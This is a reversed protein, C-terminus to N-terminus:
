VLTDLVAQATDISSNTAAAAVWAPFDAASVVSCRRFMETEAPTCAQYSLSFSARVGLDGAVLEDLRRQRNVLRSALDAFRWQTNAALRTGAIRLALPLGGCADVVVRVAGAEKAVRDAGVIGRLLSISDERSPPRLQIACTGDLGVLRSRSTVIVAAGETGPLLPRLQAVDTANDLVILVRRGAVMTRFLQSRSQVDAPLFRRDRGMAVMWEALVDSPDLGGNDHGHLDVFLAGDGFRDALQHALRVALATKGMGGLGTIVCLRRPTGTPLARTLEHVVVEQERRRGTFEPIDRPLQAQPTFRDRAFPQEQVTPQQNLIAHHLQALRPSPDIGMEDRLWGRLARYAELADVQRGSRALATMLHATFLENGPHAGVLMTLESIVHAHMGLALDAEIRRDLVALRREEYRPAYVRELCGACVDLLAPGRWLS